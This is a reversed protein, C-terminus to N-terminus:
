QIDGSSAQPALDTSASASAAPVSADDLPTAASATTDTSPSVTVSTEILETGGDTTDVLAADTSADLEASSGADAGADGANRMPAKPITTVQIEALLANSELASSIRVSLTATGIALGQLRATHTAQAPVQLVETDSSTWTYALVGALASDGAFPTATIDVTEGVALTLATLRQKNAGFIRLNDPALARLHIFDAFATNSASIFACYGPQVFEFENNSVRVFEDSAARIQQNGSGGALTDLKFRGGVAIGVPLGPRAERCHVDSTASCVYAFSERTLVGNLSGSSPECAAGLLTLWPLWRFPRIM